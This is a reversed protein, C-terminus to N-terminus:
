AALAAEYMAELDTEVRQPAQRYEKFEQHPNGFTVASNRPEGPCENTIDHIMLPLDEVPQRYREPYRNVAAGLFFKAQGERHEIPTLNDTISQVYPKTVPVLYGNQGPAGRLGPKDEYTAVTLGSRDLHPAGLLPQKGAMYQLLRLVHMNMMRDPHFMMNEFGIASAGVRMPKITAEYYEDCKELFERMETPLPGGLYAEARMMTQPGYHFTYKHDSGPGRNIEYPNENGPLRYELFYSGNGIFQDANTEDVGIKDVRYHLSQVLRDDEFCFNVFNSFDSFLEQCAAKGVEFPINAYAQELLENRITQGDPYVLGEPM